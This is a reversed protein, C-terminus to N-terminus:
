KWGAKEKGGTDAAVEEDWAGTQILRILQPVIRRVARGRHSLVAKVQSGLEGFTRHYEVVEFLPDYGFGGTGAPAERIRGRCFTECEARIAGYPDAVTMHCVYHATRREPSVETLRELLLTNNTQDTAAPGSFRASRIGPQGDLADVVLGSDEGLVWQRLTTAQQVAKKAANQAFTQGDEVVEVAEAFDDLTKLQLGHPELLEALEALKKRNRTGLVLIRQNAM